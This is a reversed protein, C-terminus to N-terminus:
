GNLPPTPPKQGFYYGFATGLLGAVFLMKDNNVSYYILSATLSITLFAKLRGDKDQKM